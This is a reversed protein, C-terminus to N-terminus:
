PVTLNFTFAQHEAATVLITYTLGSDLMMPNAWRGTDTTFAIAKLYATTRRDADYDTKLFATLKANDIAVHTASDRVLYHDAGGTDHDVPTDGDGASGAVSSSSVDSSARVTFETGTWNFTGGAVPPSDTAPVLNSGAKKFLEAIYGDGAALGPLQYSYQGPFVASETVARAVTASAYNASGVAVATTGDFVFGVSQKLLLRLNAAQGALSYFILTDDAM